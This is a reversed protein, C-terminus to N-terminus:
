LYELASQIAHDLSCCWEGLDNMSDDPISNEPTAHTLCFRYATSILGSGCIKCKLSANLVTRHLRVQQPPVPILLGESYHEMICQRVGSVMDEHCCHFHQNSLGGYEAGEDCQYYSYGRSTVSQLVVLMSHSEEVSPIIHGCLECSLTM